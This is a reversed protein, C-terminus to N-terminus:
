HGTIYNKEDDLESKQTKIRLALGIELFIRGDRTFRGPFGPSENTQTM